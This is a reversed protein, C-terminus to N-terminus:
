RKSFDVLHLPHLVQLGTGDHIQAACVSSETCALGCRSGRFLDFLREGVANSLDYGMTGSKMGFTGGMGCCTGTEVIDVKYGAATLFRVAPGGGTLARDHCPIHFGLEAGAGRSPALNLRGLGPEVFEFFPHSHAAVLRSGEGPALTLYADRLMYAATPETSVVEYGDQVYGALAKVNYAAVKAAKRVEGYSIYPMGSWKLKPVEVEYGLAALMKVAKVGLEPDNYDAYVDPFYVVKGSSGDGGDVGRLRSRLRRRSFAPLTRRRDVGFVKEMALRAARPKLSWNSLPATASALRALTESGAFFRNARPQGHLDVLEQKVEAIMMPIDIDAPCAEKCLGCSICLDSFAANDVGHVNATWPIGIPGPYIHGFTHGGVVSYTPCVNMCAGCRICDLAGAYRGDAKMKSRGNDLIVVHLERGASRGGMPSRATFASVYVTTLQGTASLAAASVVEAADEWSNVIKETGILVVHVDPAASVLRGNGENTEIVVTGTEAIGANAGTVGVKASLFVPRLYARVEKLIADPDEPVEKGLSQSVLSAVDAVSKHAAPMVLHVPREHAMQVILEGLDTEVCRVGRAELAHDFDIEESTLSKSKALVEAGHAKALGAVYDIAEAGDKAFFVHGGNGEVKEAFKRPLDPDSMARAKLGRVSEKMAGVDIGLEQVARARNGRSRSTSAWMKDSLGDTALARRVKEALKGRDTM